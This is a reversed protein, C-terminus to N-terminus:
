ELADGLGQERPRRPRMYNRWFNVAVDPRLDFIARNENLWTNYCSRCSHEWAHKWAAEVGDRLCNKPAFTGGHLVCPIIDGNPEVNLFMRGASCPTPQGPAEIREVEFDQWDLTRRYSAATFLVPAGRKKAAIIRAVVARIEEPSPMWDRAAPGFMERNFQPIQFNVMVGLRDALSLLWDIEGISRRTVVASLFFDIREAACAEIARMVRRWTGHGRQADHAERRGDISIVLEDLARAVEMREPLRLGNTVLAARMGLRKVEDILEGLDARLLPEGGLFKIRVAGLRAFERLILRHEATTLQEEYRAPFACYGCRADCANLLGYQVFFPRPRRTIKAWAIRAGIAIKDSTRM